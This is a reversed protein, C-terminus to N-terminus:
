GVPPRAGSMERDPPFHGQSISPAMSRWADQNWSIATMRTTTPSTLRAAGSGAWAMSGRSM